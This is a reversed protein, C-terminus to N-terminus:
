GCGLNRIKPFFQAHLVKIIDRDFLCKRAKISFHYVPRGARKDEPVYFFVADGGFVVVDMFLDGIDNFTFEFHDDAALFVEEGGAHNMDDWRVDGM